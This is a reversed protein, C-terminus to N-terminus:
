PSEETTEIKCELDLREEYIDEAGDGTTRRREDLFCIFNM